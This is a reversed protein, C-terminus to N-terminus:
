VGSQKVVPWRLGTIEAYKKACSLASDRGAIRYHKAIDNWATGRGRMEYCRRGNILTRRKPGKRVLFRMTKEPRTGAHLMLHDRHEILVLNDPLNNSHDGDLHHVDFGRATMERLWSESREPHSLLWVVHHDKLKKDM